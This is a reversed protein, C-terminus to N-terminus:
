GRAGGAYVEAVAVVKTDGALRDAIDRVTLAETEQKIEDEIRDLLWARCGEKEETEFDPRYWRRKYVPKELLSLYSSDEICKIRYEVM